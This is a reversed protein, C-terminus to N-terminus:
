REVSGGIHVKKGSQAAAMLPPIRGWIPQAEAILVADNGWLTGITSHARYAAGSATMGLRLIETTQWRLQM